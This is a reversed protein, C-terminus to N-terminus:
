ITESCSPHILMCFFLFLVVVYMCRYICKCTCYMQVFTCWCTSILIQLKRQIAIHNCAPIVCEQKLWSGNELGGLLLILLGHKHSISLCFHPPLHLILFLSLTLSSDIIFSSLFHSPASFLFLDHPSCSAAVQKSFFLGRGNKEERGKM